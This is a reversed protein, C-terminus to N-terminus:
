CLGHRRHVHDGPRQLDVGLNRYWAIEDDLRSASLVDPLLDDDVLDTHVSAAGM